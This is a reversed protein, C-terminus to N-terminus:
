ARHLLKPTGEDRRGEEIEDAAQAGRWSGPPETNGTDHGLDAVFRELDARRIRISSGLRVVGPIASANILEYMRSRSVSLARAAESVRLLLPSNDKMISQPQM